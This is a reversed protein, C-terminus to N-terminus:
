CLTKICTMWPIPWETKPLKIVPEIANWKNAMGHSEFALSCMSVDKIAAFTIFLNMIQIASATYYISILHSSISDKKIEGVVAHRGDIFIVTSCSAVSRMFFFFNEILLGVHVSKIEWLQTEDWQNRWDHAHQIVKKEMIGYDNALHFLAFSCNQQYIWTSPNRM